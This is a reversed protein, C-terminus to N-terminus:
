ILHEDLAKKVLAATNKVGMKAILNYRYTEVTRLGLFLKDAIEQSTMGEVILKLMEKERRSLPPIAAKRKKETIVHALLPERLQRDIFQKGANVSGIAEILTQQDTSKLLYGAAGADLIQQVTVPQEVNTLVLVAVAPYTATIEPLLMDGGIQPMHLDLLLVDPQEAQLGLLLEKGDSFTRIIKIEPYDDLMNRIGRIVMPHDDAIAIRIHPKM